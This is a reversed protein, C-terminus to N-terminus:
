KNMRAVAINKKARERRENRSTATRVTNRDERLRLGGYKAARARATDVRDPGHRAVTARVWTTSKVSNKPRRREQLGEGDSKHRYPTEPYIFPPTLKSAHFPM